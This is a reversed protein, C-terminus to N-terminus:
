TLIIYPYRTLSHSSLELLICELLAKHNAKAVPLDGSHCVHSAHLPLQLTVSATASCSLVKLRALYNTRMRGNFTPSLLTALILYLCVRIASADFVHRLFIFVYKQSKVLRFLIM